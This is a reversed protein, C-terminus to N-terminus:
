GDQETKYPQITKLTVKEGEALMGDYVEVFEEKITITEFGDWELIQEWTPAGWGGDVRLADDIEQTDQFIGVVEGDDSVLAYTFNM